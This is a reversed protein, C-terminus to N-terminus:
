TPKFGSRARQPLLSVVFALLALATSAAWLWWAAGPGWSRTEGGSAAQGWFGTLVPDRFYIGAAPPIAIAAYSLAAIGIALVLLHVGLIAPRSVSGRRLGFQLVSLAMLLLAYAAAVVYTTTAVDRIRFEVFNPSTYPTTTSSWLTGNRWEEEARATWSYTAKDITGGSAAQITWLPQTLAVVALLAAIGTVVMPLVSPTRQAAVPHDAM